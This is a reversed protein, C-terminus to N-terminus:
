HLKFKIIDLSLKRSKTKKPKASIKECHLIGTGLRQVMQMGQEGHLAHRKLKKGVQGHLLFGNIRPMKRRLQELADLDRPSRIERLNCLKIPDM